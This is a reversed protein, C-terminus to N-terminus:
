LDVKGPMVLITTHNDNLHAPRFGEASINGSAWNHYIEQQQEQSNPTSINPIKLIPKFGNAVVPKLQTLKDKDSIYKLRKRQVNSATSIPSILNSPRQFKKLRPSPNDGQRVPRQSIIPTAHRMTSPAALDNISLPLWSQQTSDAQM